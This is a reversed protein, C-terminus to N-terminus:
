QGLLCHRSALDSQAIRYTQTHQWADVPSLTITENSAM